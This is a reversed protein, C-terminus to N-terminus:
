VENSEENTVGKKNAVFEVLKTIGFVLFISALSLGYGLYFNLDFPIELKWVFNLGIAIAIYLAFAASPFVLDIPKFIAKEKYVFLTAISTILGVEVFYLATTVFHADDPNLYVRSAFLPFIVSILATGVFIKKAIAGVKGKNFVAFLAFLILLSTYSFTLEKAPTYANEYLSANYFFRLLAVSILGISLGILIKRGNDKPKYTREAAIVIFPILVASLVLLLINLM